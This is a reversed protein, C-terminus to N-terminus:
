ELTILARNEDLTAQGIGKVETIEDIATFPGYAERYRVIEMARANGVGRLTSALTAADATNINVTAAAVAESEQAHATAAGGIGAGVGITAALVLLPVALLRGIPVRAALAAVANHKSTSLYSNMM